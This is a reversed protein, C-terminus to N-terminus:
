PKLTEVSGYTRDPAKELSYWRGGYEFRDEHVNLSRKGSPLEFVFIVMPVKKVAAQGTMERGEKLVPVLSQLKQRAEDGKYTWNKPLETTVKTTMTFGTAGLLEDFSLVQKQEAGKPASGQENPTVGGCGALFLLVATLGVLWRMM